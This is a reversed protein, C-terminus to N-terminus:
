AEEAWRSEERIQAEEEPTFDNEICIVRIEEVTRGTLMSAMWASALDLLPMLGTYWAACMISMLREHPPADEVIEALMFEREWPTVLDEIPGELPKPIPNTVGKNELLLELYRVLRRLTDAGCKPLPIEVVDDDIMTALLGAQRAAAQSVIVRTNDQSVLTVEM